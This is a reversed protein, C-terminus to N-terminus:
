FNSSVGPFFLVQFPFSVEANLISNQSLHQSILQSQYALRKQLLEGSNSKSKSKSNSVPAPNLPKYQKLELTLKTIYRDKALMEGRVDELAESTSKCRKEMQIIKEEYAKIQRQFDIEKDERNRLAQEMTRVQDFLRDSFKEKEDDTALDRFISLERELANKQQELQSVLLTHVSLEKQLSEVDLLPNSTNSFSASRPPTLLAFNRASPSTSLKM